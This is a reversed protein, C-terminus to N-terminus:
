RTDEVVQSDVCQRLALKLRKLLAYISQVSRSARAAIQECALGGEYRSQLIQRQGKPLSDLCKRLAVQRSSVAEGDFVAMASVCNDLLEIDINKAARGSERYWRRVQNKAVGMLWPLPPQTPDFLQGKTAIVIAIEQLIDDTVHYDRTATFVYGRLRGQEAFYSRM